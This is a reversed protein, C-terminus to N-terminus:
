EVMVERILNAVREPSEIPLLHGGRLFVIHTSGFVTQMDLSDRQAATTDFMGCVVLDIDGGKASAYASGDLIMDVLGAQYVIQAYTARSNWGVWRIRRMAERTRLKALTMGRLLIFLRWNYIHAWFHASNMIMRSYREYMESTNPVPNLLVIKRTVVIDKGLVASCGFSHACIAAVPSIEREIAILTREFWLQLSAANPLPIASSKGHGPLDVIAVRHTKTLEIALAVLGVHDGSIGHVLLIFPKDSPQSCWVSTVHRGDKVVMRKLQQKSWSAYEM